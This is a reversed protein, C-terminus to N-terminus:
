GGAMNAWCGLLWLESALGRRSAQDYQTRLQNGARRLRELARHHRLKRKQLASLCVDEGAARKHPVLRRRDASATSRRRIGRVPYVGGRHSGHSDMSIWRGLK